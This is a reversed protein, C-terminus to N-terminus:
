FTFPQVYCLKGERAISAVVEKDDTSVCNSNAQLEDVLKERPVETGRDIQGHKGRLTSILTTLRTKKKPNDSKLAFQKWLTKPTANLSGHHGVKYLEVRSLVALKEDSDEAHKLAYLWNEIQADGPFLFGRGNIEFLLIVSTNNMAKDLIRVLELMQEGTTRELLPILWRTYPKRKKEPIVRNPFLPKTAGPHAARATPVAAKELLHWFEDPDRARQKSMEKSQKLTPPGLVHIKVGPLHQELATPKGYHLYEAKKGMNMLNEVASKNALNTEGLFELKTLTSDARLRQSKRDAQRRKVEDHLALAFENMQALSRVFARKSSASSSIDTAEKADPAAKPDETWPQIVLEPKMKAILDGAGRGKKTAFGSIHDQHRHTAVVATLKANPCADTKCVDRIAEAVAVLGADPSQTTRLQTSGFDILVHRDDNGGYHFTLLFCDGFGVQYMRVTLGTPQKSM